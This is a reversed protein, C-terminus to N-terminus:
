RYGAKVRAWTQPTFEVPGCGQGFAGIFEGCDFGSPHNEPLCPSDAALHFNDSEPDCFRPWDSFNGYTEGNYQLKGTVRLKFSHSNNRLTEWAIGTRNYISSNDNIFNITKNLIIPASRGKFTINHLFGTKNSIYFTYNTMSFMTFNEDPSEAVAGDDCDSDSNNVPKSISCSFILIFIILAFFLQFINLFRKKM